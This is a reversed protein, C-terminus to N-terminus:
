NQLPPAGIAYVEFGEYFIFKYAIKDPTEQFFGYKFVKPNKTDKDVTLLRSLKLRIEIFIPDPTTNAVLQMGFIQWEHPFTQKFDHYYIAYAISRMIHEFRSTDLKTEITVEGGATTLQADDLIANMLGPSKIMSQIAKPILSAGVENVDVSTVIKGRIYEVDLSNDKNHAACSPVTILNNRYGEPFFSLPPVHEKSVSPDDCM